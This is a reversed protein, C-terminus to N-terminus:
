MHLECISCDTLENRPFVNYSITAEFPSIMCLRDTHVVSCLRPRRVTAFELAKALLSPKWVAALAKLEGFGGCLGLSTSRLGAVEDCLM